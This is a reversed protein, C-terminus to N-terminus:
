RKNRWQDFIKRAPECIAYMTVPYPLLITITWVLSRVLHSHVVGSRVISTSEGTLSSMSIAASAARVEDQYPIEYLYVACIVATITVIVAVASCIVIQIKDSHKM